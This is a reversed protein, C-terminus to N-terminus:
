SSRFIVPLGHLPIGLKCADHCSVRAHGLGLGLNILDTMRRGKADLSLIAMVKDSVYGLVARPGKGAKDPIAGDLKGLHALDLHKPTSLLCEPLTNVIASACNSAVIILLFSFVLRYVCIAM